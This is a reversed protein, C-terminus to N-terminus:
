GNSSILDCYSSEVLDEKKISFAKILAEVTKRGTEVGAGEPILAEFEIFTGLGEVIDLHIRTSELLYVTREKRVVAKVGLVEALIRKLEDPSDVRAIQYESPGPGARDARRYFILESESGTGREERLKLRGEPINFYTDVQRVRAHAQGAVSVAVAEAQENDNVRAKIEINRM